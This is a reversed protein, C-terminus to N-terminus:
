EDGRKRAEIERSPVVGVHCAEGSLRMEEGAVMAPHLETAIDTARRMRAPLTAWKRDRELWVGFCKDSPKVDM